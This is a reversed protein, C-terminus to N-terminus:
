ADIYLVVREKDLVEYTFFYYIGINIYLGKILM